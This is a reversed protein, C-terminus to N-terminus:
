GSFSRRSRAEGEFRMAVEELAGHSGLVTVWDTLRLRTNGHTILTNRGRRLSLVLADEPLVLERLPVGHLNPNGVQIEAVGRGEELGLLMSTSRPSRVLQDLLSIMATSPDIVVVGLDHFRKHNRPEQARVVLNETGYNEYVLECVRFNKDDDLLSVVCEARSADLRELTDVSIADVAHIELGHEKPDEFQVGELAALKVNWGHEHLQRALAMAQGEHGFIIVDRVGDFGAADARPHAEGVAKLVWRFLPPGVLQNLVIVAILITALGQGWAPFELSVEKALSLGVGAQTVFSMWLLRSQRAPEGATVSGLFAGAMIALLRVGFLALAVPWTRVLVELSMSAGAFTFFVVFVTPANRDLLRHLEGRHGTANAVFLGAVMCILLPELLIDHGALTLDEQRLYRSLSFVAWGLLLVLVSRTARGEAAILILRLLQGVFLGLAVSLALELLLFVATGLLGGANHLIVNAIEASIAFLVIVVADMIVTVGLSLRTFPGWARVEKIIAIASSPSRAVLISGALLAAALVTGPRADAIGPITGALKTFAFAVLPMTVATVGFTVWLISRIRDRFEKLYLEVGAAFGIFAIAIEDVFHLKEVASRSLLGLADPGALAGCLLFGSILPLRVRRFWGGVERSALTIAAVAAIAALLGTMAEM